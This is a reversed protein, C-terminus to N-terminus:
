AGGHAYTSWSPSQQVDQMLRTAVRGSPWKDPHLCTLLQRQARQRDAPPLEQVMLEATRRVAADNLGETGRSLAEAFRELEANGAWPMVAHELRRLDSGRKSLEGHAQELLERLEHIEGRLTSSTQRESALDATAADRAMQASRCDEETRLTEARSFSLSLRQNRLSAALEERSVASLAQMRRADDVESQLQAVRLESEGLQMQAEDIQVELEENKARLTSINGGVQGVSRRRAVEHESCKARLAEAEANLRKNLRWLAVLAAVVAIVLVWAALASGFLTGMTFFQVAPSHAEGAITQTRCSRSDM